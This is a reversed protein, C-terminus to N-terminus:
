SFMPEDIHESQSTVLVEQWHFKAAKDLSEETIRKSNRFQRGAKNCELNFWQTAYSSVLGEVDKLYLIRLGLQCTAEWFRVIVIWVLFIKQSQRQKRRNREERLNELNIRLKKGGDPLRLNRVNKEVREIREELQADTLDLFGNSQAADLDRQRERSVIELEMVDGMEGMIRGWDIPLLANPM